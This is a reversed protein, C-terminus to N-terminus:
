LNPDNKLRDLASSLHGETETLLDQAHAPSRAGSALLIADKVRNDALELVQQADARPIGVVRSVIDVARVRLKENDPRLNVMEGRYVHGLRTHALTSILGLVCKQVTGAAMRTSGTVAESPTPICIPIDALDLLPSQPKNAIGIVKTGRRKGADAAALTYPTSGSASIAIILDKQVVRLAHVTNRAVNSDDEVSGLLNDANELGGAILFVIQEPDTGFTGPLEAGDQLAILGSSGAGCYIIRGSNSITEAVARAADAIARFAQPVAALAELQIDHMFKLAAQDDLTDITKGANM